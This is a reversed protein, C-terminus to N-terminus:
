DGELEQGVFKFEPTIFDNHAYRNNTNTMAQDGEAFRATGPKGNKTHGNRQQM